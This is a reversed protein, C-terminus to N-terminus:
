WSVGIGVGFASLGISFEPHDGNASEPAATPAVTRVDMYGREPVGTTSRWRFSTELGSAYKWFGQYLADTTSPDPAAEGHAAAAETVAEHLSEPSQLKKLSETIGDAIGKSVLQAITQYSEYDSDVVAEAANTMTMTDDKKQDHQAFALRNDVRSLAHPV